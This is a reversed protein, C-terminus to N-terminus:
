GQGSLGLIARAQAAGNLLRNVRTEIRWGGDTRALTWRNAAIRFAEFGEGAWRFVCSYGVATAEDGALVIEVPSLVHAAGGAILDQHNPGDLLAAIATPGEVVGFGDIDYQGEASWTQGARATDGNDVAPGYSAILNRIAERDELELVRAALAALRGELDGGGTL